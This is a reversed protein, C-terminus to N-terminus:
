FSADVLTPAGTWKMVCVHKYEPENNTSQGDKELIM